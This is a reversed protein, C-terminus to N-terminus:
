STSDAWRGDMYDLRYHRSGSTAARIGGSEAAQWFSLGGYINYDTEWRRAERFRSRVATYLGAVIWWVRHAADLDAKIKKPILLPM